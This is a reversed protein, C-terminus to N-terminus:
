ETDKTICWLIVYYIYFTAYTKQKFIYNYYTYYFLNYYLLFLIIFLVHEIIHSMKTYKIFIIITVPSSM